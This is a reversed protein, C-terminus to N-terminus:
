GTIARLSRDLRDRFTAVDSVGALEKLGGMFAAHTRGRRYDPERPPHNLYRDILRLDPAM